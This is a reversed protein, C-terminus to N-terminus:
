YHQKLFSGPYGKQRISAITPNVKEASGEGVLIRYVRREGSWGTQIFVKRLGKSEAERAMEVAKEISTYSGIQVGFGDPYQIEGTHTYTNIGAFREERPPSTKRNDTVEPETYVPDYGPHDVPPRDDMPLEKGVPNPRTEPKPQPPKENDKRSNGGSPRLVSSIRELLRSAANRNQPEPEPQKPQPPNKTNGQENQQRQEREIQERVSPPMDEVYVVECKVKATGSRIMDIKEAAAMSLDIIRGGVYPGRDNIRVTISKGNTLNTVKILTNFRIKPHAATLAYMDFKEGNATKRGHFQHAYYSAVGEQIYGVKNYSQEFKAGKSGTVLLLIYFFINLNV